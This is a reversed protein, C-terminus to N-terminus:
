LTVAEEKTVKKFILFKQVIFSIVFLLMETILKALAKNMGLFDHLCYLIVTNLTLILCALMVYGIISKFRKDKCHFIFTSNLYYNFAASIIRAAINGCILATGQAFRFGFLRVLIFFLFYDLLFSVFSTGSFALLNGYIRVSDRITRFHSCSNSDDHYITAIPVEKILTKNKACTLLVNM